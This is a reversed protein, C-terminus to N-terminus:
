ILCTIMTLASIGNHTIWEDADAATAGELLEGDEELAIFFSFPPSRFLERRFNNDPVADRHAIYLM